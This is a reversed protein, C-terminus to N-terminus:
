PRPPPSPLRRPLVSLAPVMAPLVAPRISSSLSMRRGLVCVTWNTQIKVIESPPPTRRPSELPAGPASASLRWHVMATRWTGGNRGDHGNCTVVTEGRWTTWGPHSRGPVSVARVLSKVPLQGGALLRHCVTKGGAEGMKM